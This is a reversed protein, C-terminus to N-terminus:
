YDLEKNLKKAGPAHGKLKVLEIKLPGVDTPGVTLELPQYGPAKFTLLRPGESPAASLSLPGPGEGIKKAGEFVDVHAVNAEIALTRETPAAPAASASPSASAPAVVPEAPKSTAATTPEAKATPAPAATTSTTAAGAEAGRSRMMSVGAGVGLACAVAVLAFMAVRGGNSKRPEATAGALTKNTGTDVVTRAASIESIEGPTLKSPLALPPGSPATTSSVGVASPVAVGAGRAAAALADVAAGLSAPRKSPEKELMALVPADLEPPLSPAVSSMPPAPASTQKFLIEMVDEGDFPFAGTLTQHVLVGFSYIDTRHDVNRGRCQEPSMYHPTGIPSGTRTKHGAAADGLLKAIGFDLLKPFTTGDADIVLFVNEPKLDRHAIGAGHAADIAKAIGRFLPLADEISLRGRQQLYRDLPMGELLDMVYYQRGDALAGFSFIDIIHRNKIQNVARAEAVFRSVMQPNSSYQRNLVKIAAAKGILPHVGRYVSGFGGEGIKEEVVYEGLPQGAALDLEALQSAMEDSLLHEGDDPCVSTGTSFTKRCRPCIL